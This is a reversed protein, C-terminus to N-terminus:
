LVVAFNWLSPISAIFSVERTSHLSLTWVSTKALGLWKQRSKPFIQEQKTGWQTTELGRPRRVHLRMVGTEGKVKM